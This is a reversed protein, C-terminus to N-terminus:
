TLRCIMNPQVVGLGIRAMARCAYAGAIWADPQEGTSEYAPAQRLGLVTARKFAGVVGKSTGLWDSAVVVVPRGLITGAITPLEALQSLSDLPSVVSHSKVLADATAPDLIWVLTSLAAPNIAAMAAAPSTGAAATTGAKKIVGDFADSATTDGELFVRDIEDLLADLFIKGVQALGDGTMPANWDEILEGSILSWTIATYAQVVVPVAEWVPDSKAAQTGEAQWRVAPAGTPTLSAATMKLTNMPLVGAVQFAISHRRAYTWTAPFVGQGSVAATQNARFREDDVTPPDAQGTAVRRLEQGAHYCAIRDWQDGGFPETELMARELRELLDNTM